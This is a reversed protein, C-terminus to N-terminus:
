RPRIINRSAVVTAAGFAAQESALNAPHVGAWSMLLRDSVQLLEVESPLQLSTSLEARQNSLRWSLPIGTLGSYAGAWAGVLGAVIPTGCNIQLAQITSLRFDSPVKLFAYLACTLVNLEISPRQTIAKAAALLPVQRKLLDKVLLCSEELAAYRSSLQDLVLSPQFQERLILSLVTAATLAPLMAKEADIAGVAQFSSWRAIAQEVEQQLRAEDEHFYLAVPLVALSMGALDAGALGGGALNMAKQKVGNQLLRDSWGQEQWQHHLALQRCGEVILRSWCDDIALEAFGWQEIWQWDYPQKAPYQLSCYGLREGLVTGLLAGRFRNVLPYQM